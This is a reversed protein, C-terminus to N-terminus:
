RDSIDLLYVGDQSRVIYFDSQEPYFITQDKLKLPLISSIERMGPMLDVIYLTQNRDFSWALLGLQDSFVLYDHQKEPIPSVQRILKSPFYKFREKVNFKYDLHIHVLGHCSPVL